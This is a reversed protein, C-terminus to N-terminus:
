GAPEPAAGCYETYLAAHDHMCFEGTWANATVCLVSRGDGTTGASACCNMAQSTFGTKAALVEAGDLAYQRPLNYLFKNIMALGEPHQPTPATTYQVTSLIERCTPEALAAQLILAMDRVTTYLAEDHLGSANAFHTDSLGLAQATENMLAVFAEESGATCLALAETAEAGSPLVAGYLLERLTVTEGAVFGAMSADALYLPDIIEQTMEFTEDLNELNRCATLLTMVKTMSAPYIRADPNKQALIEGSGADILIASSSYLELDLTRTDPSEYFDPATEPQPEPEPEPAPEPEPEPDPAPAPKAEPEPASPTQPAAPEQTQAPASSIPAKLYPDFVVQKLVLGVVVLLALVAALALVARVRRRKAAAARDKAAAFGRPTDQPRSNQEEM